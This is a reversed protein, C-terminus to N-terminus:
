EGYVQAWQSNANHMILKGFESTDIHMTKDEFELVPSKM